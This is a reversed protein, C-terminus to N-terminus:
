RQLNRAAVAFGYSTAPILAIGEADTGLLRGFLGRLREVDSFWDAPTSRGRAVAGTSRLRRRRSSGLAPAAVLNATNFYAIEEPVDFLHRYETLDQIM